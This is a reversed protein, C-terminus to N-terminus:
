MIKLKWLVGDTKIGRAECASWLVELGELRETEDRQGIRSLESLHPLFTPDELMQSLTNPDILTFPLSLSRLSPPLGTLLKTMRARTDVRLRSNSPLHCVFLLLSPLPSVINILHAFSKELPCHSAGQVGELRVHTLHHFNALSFDFPIFGLNSTLDLTRLTTTSNTTLWRFSPTISYSSWNFCLADLQFTPPSPITEKADLFVTPQVEWTYIAGLRRLGPLRHLLEVDEEDDINIDLAQLDSLNPIGYKVIQSTRSGHISDYFAVHIGRLNPCWRLAESLAESEWEGELGSEYSEISVAQVIHAITQNRRLAQLVLSGRPTRTRHAADDDGDNALGPRVPALGGLCVNHYLAARATPLFAQSVLALKALGQSVFGDDDAAFHEIIEALIEPPLTPIM